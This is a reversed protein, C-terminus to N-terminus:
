RLLSFDRAEAVARMTYRPDTQMPTPPLTPKGDRRRKWVYREMNPDCNRTGLHVGAALMLKVDEERLALPGSM